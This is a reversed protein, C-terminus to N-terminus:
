DNKENLFWVMLIKFNQEDSVMVFLFLCAVSQFFINFNMCRVPNAKLVYLSWRNICILFFIFLRPSCFMSLVNSCVDWWFFIYSHSIFVHFTLCPIVRHDLLEWVNKWPFFIHLFSNKNMIVLCQHCGLHGDVSYVYLQTRQWFVAWCLLLLSGLCEAVHAFNLSITSALLHQLMHFLLGEFVDLEWGWSWM